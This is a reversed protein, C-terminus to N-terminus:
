WVKGCGLSDVISLKGPLESGAATLHRWLAETLGGGREGGVPDNFYEVLDDEARGVPRPTAPGTDSGLEFYADFDTANESWQAHVEYGAAEGARVM